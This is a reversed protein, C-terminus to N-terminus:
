GSAVVWVAKVLPRALSSACDVMISQGPLGPVLTGSKEVWWTMSFSYILASSYGSSKFSKVPNISRLYIGLANGANFPRDSIRKTGEITNLVM